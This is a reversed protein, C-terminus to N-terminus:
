KTFPTQGQTLYTQEVDICPQGTLRAMDISQARQQQHVLLAVDPNWGAYMVEPGYADERSDPEGIRAPSYFAIYMTKERQSPQASISQPVCDPLQAPQGTSWTIDRIACNVYRKRNAWFQMVCPVM